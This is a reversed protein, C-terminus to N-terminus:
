KSAFPSVAERCMGHSGKGCIRGDQWIAGDLIANELNSGTLGSLRLSAMRLNAGALNARELDSEGLDARELNANSLDVGKLNCKSLNVGTLNMGSLNKGSLDRGTKLLAMVEGISLRKGPAIEVIALPAKRLTKGRASSKKKKMKKPVVAGLSKQPAPSVQDASAPIAPDNGGSAGEAAWVNSSPVDALSVAVFFVAAVGFMRFITM